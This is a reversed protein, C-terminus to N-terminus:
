VRKQNSKPGMTVGIDIKSLWFYALIGFIIYTIINAIMHHDIHGYKASLQSSYFCAIFSIRVVNIVTIVLSGLLSYFVKRKRAVPLALVLAWWCSIVGIGLCAYNLHVSAGGTVFIRECTHVNHIGSIDLVASCIILIFNRYWDIVNVSAAFSLYRGGPISLGVLGYATKYLVLFCVIFSIFFKYETRQWASASIKNLVPIM